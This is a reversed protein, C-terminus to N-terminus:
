GWLHFDSVIPTLRSTYQICHKKHAKSTIIIIHHSILIWVQDLGGGGGWGTLSPGSSLFPSSKHSKQWLIYFSIQTKCIKMNANKWIPMNEYNCIKIDAHKINAYKATRYDSQIKCIKLLSLQLFVPSGKPLRCLQPLKKEQSWYIHRCIILTM